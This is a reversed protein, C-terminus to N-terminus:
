ERAGPAPPGTGERMQVPSAALRDISLTRGAPDVQGFTLVGTPCSQVCASCRVCQPDQMPEGKNAFSMIDIGQHCVSTCVNCSICKKKDALIRFRGFRAYVHMLAALPCAFRCWVRGSFHFYFGVGVIGALLLDVIVKYNLVPFPGALKAGSTAKGELAGLYIANLLHDSPLFWGVVRLLLLVLAIWLIVQGIMNLRNWVPGHPMKHRHADGLTEALAGCSCIWGCYAGKGWFYVLVPILVFTQVLSIVLWATMPQHSFVNWLFLPWALIFGFARWYERGQPDWESAPFLADAWAATPRADDRVHARADSLRLVAERTPSDPWASRLIVRDGERRHPWSVDAELDPWAAAAAPLWGNERARAAREAPEMETEASLEWWGSVVAPPLDVVSHRAGLGGSNGIWPLVIYPLLFLPIAQFAMLTLTQATIYPTRRRRIRRIGFVVICLTYALSYWAAPTGFSTAVTGLLGERAGSIRFPFLSNTEFYSTVAGGAKWLYVFTMFAVFAALTTWFKVGRDGVVHAGSRRFFELPAERGIMAFVVDNPMAEDGDPGTLEVEDARIEKVDSGLLVRVSGQREAEELQEVNEPKPRTLERGRYSLTVQSGCAALAVATEVASDGGGVVLVRDECHDRPDHLRNFVKDLDEGPVGLRRYNGSRGLAAIVARARLTEGGALIM